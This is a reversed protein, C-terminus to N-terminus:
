TLFSEFVSKFLIASPDFNPGVSRGCEATVKLSTTSTASDLVHCVVGDSDVIDVIGDFDILAVSLGVECKTKM